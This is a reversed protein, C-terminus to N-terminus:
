RFDLLAPDDPLREFAEVDVTRWLDAGDGWRVALPRETERDLWLTLSLQLPNRRPAGPTAPAADRLRIEYADRGNYVVKEAAGVDLDGSAAKLATAVLSSFSIDPYGVGPFTIIPGDPSRRTRDVAGHADGPGGPQTIVSEEGANPGALRLEHLKDIVGGDTVHLSLDETFTLNLDPEVTKLRWHLIGGAGEVAFARKLLQGSGPTSSPTLAIAAAALAAVAALPVVRRRVPHRHPLRGLAPVDAFDADAVPNAEAIARLLPDDSM